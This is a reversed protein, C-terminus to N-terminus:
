IKNEISEVCECGDLYTPLDDACRVILESLIGKVDGLGDALAVPLRSQGQVETASGTDDILDGLM